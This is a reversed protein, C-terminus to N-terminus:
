VAVAWAQPRATLGRASLHRGLAVRWDPLDAGLSLLKANSLACFRPRPAASQVTGSLAPEVRPQVGLQRAIERALDFWTTHGSSVCHYTGYPAGCELLWATAAVVDPVYSPSVTRDVFARVPTGAQLSEAIRDITPMQGGCPDGGFLSELRLVYHRPAQAAGREGALKSAGYASLPNPRCAETYPSTSEGDFVFDTSYHVLLANTREAARALHAPGDANVAFAAARDTEAADVANYSSCNAIVHPRLREVMGSVSAADCVDLGDRTLSAVQHGAARLGRTLQAGLRGGAGTVLIRMFNSIGQQAAHGARRLVPAVRWM